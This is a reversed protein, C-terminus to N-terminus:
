RLNGTGLYDMFINSISQLPSVPAQHTEEKTSTGTLKLGFKRGTFPMFQWPMCSEGLKQCHKRFGSEAMAVFILDKPLGYEELIKAM